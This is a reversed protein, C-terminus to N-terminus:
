PLAAAIVQRCRDMADGHPYRTFAGPTVQNANMAPGAARALDVLTWGLSNAVGVLLDRREAALAQLREEVPQPPLALVLRPLAGLGECRSRLAGLLRSEEGTWAGGYLTQNGPVWVITRPLPSGLAALAVLAAHHPFREDTAKRCEAELGTFLSQGLAEQPDGVVLARGTPRPLHPALLLWKRAQDADRRRDRLVVPVGDADVPFGAELRALPWSERVESVRLRLATSEDALSVTAGHIGVASPLPLLGSIRDTDGPLTIPLAPAGDWGISGTTGTVKVPLSFAVNREEDAWAIAPWHTFLPPVWIRLGPVSSPSPPMAALSASSASLPPDVAGMQVAVLLLAIGGLMGPRQLVGRVSRGHRGWAGM